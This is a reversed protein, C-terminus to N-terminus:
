GPPTTAKPHDAAVIIPAMERHTTANSPVHRSMTIPKVNPIRARGGSVNPTVECRNGGLARFDAKYDTLMTKGAIKATQWIDTYTGPRKSLGSQGGFKM